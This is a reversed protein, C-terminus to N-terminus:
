RTPSSVGGRSPEALRQRGFPLAQVVLNAFYRVM